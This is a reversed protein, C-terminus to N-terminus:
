KLRETLKLTDKLIQKDLIIDQPTYKKGNAKFKKKPADAMIHYNEINLANCLSWYCPIPMAPSFVEIVKTKSRSFIINTLGGGHPSFIIKANFFIKAQEFIDYNEIIIEKFELNKLITEVEEDNVFRRSYAKKRSIYIKAPYSNDPTTDRLFTSRVFEIAWMPNHGTYGPISPVILKEAQIFTNKDTILIKEEPIKLEKLCAKQFSKNQINLLYYDPNINQEKLMHFKPLVELMWHYYFDAWLTTMVAVSGNIQNVKPKNIRTFVDSKEINGIHDYLINFNNLVKNDAIVLGNEGYIKENSLEIIYDTPYKLIDSCFNGHLHKNITIPPKVSVQTEENTILLNCNKKYNNKFDEINKFIGSPTTKNFLFKNIFRKIDNIIEINNIKM